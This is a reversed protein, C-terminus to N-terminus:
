QGSSLAILLLSLYYTSLVILDASRFKALFRNWALTADSFLFVAAGAAAFFSGTGGAHIWGEWGLWAMSSIVCIYLFVPVRMRGLNPLLIRFLAMGPLFALLLLWWTFGVGKVLFAGILLLHAILFSTLGHLFRDKPLMLFIDGALAFVFAILVFVAYASMSAKAGLLVLTILIVTTLPKFVYVRWPPGKYKGRICVAASLVACVSLIWVIGQSM